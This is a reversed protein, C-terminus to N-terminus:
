RDTAKKRPRGASVAAENSARRFVNKVRTEPKVTPGIWRPQALTGGRWPQLTLGKLNTM